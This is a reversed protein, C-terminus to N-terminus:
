SAAEQETRAYKGFSTRVCLGVRSARSLAQAVAVYAMGSQAHLDSLTQPERTLLALVPHSDLAFPRGRKRERPQVRAQRRAYRDQDTEYSFTVRVTEGDRELWGAAVAALVLDVPSVAGLKQNIHTRHTEVTKVSIHLADAMTQSSSGLLISALIERERSSLRELSV